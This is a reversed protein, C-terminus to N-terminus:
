GFADLDINAIQNYSFDADILFQLGAFSDRKLHTMLNESLQLRRVKFDLPFPEVERILNNNLDLIYVQPSLENYPIRTLNSDSCDTVWNVRFYHCHCDDPCELEALEGNFGFTPTPIQVLCVTVAIVTISYLKM